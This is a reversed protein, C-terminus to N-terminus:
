RRRIAQGSRGDVVVVIQGSKVMFSVDSQLDVVGFSRVTVELGRSSSLVEPLLV